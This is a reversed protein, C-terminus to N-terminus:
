PVIYMRAENASSIGSKSEECRNLFCRSGTINDKGLAFNSIATEQGPKLTVLGLEKRRYMMAATLM